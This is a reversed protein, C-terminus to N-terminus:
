INHVTKKKYSQRVSRQPSANKLGFFAENILRVFATLFVRADIIIIIIIPIGPLKLFTCTRAGGTNNIAANFQPSM